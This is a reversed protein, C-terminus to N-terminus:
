DVPNITALWAFYSVFGIIMIVGGVLWVEWLKVKGRSRERVKVYTKMIGAYILLGVVFVLIALFITLNDM